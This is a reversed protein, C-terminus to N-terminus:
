STHQSQCALTSAVATVVACCFIVHTADTGAMAVDVHVHQQHTCAM